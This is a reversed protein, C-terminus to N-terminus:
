RGAIIAIGNAPAAIPTTVTQVLDGDATIQFQTVHATGGGNGEILALLTGEAAIDAPTGTTQAAVARDLLLNNSTAVLRSVTHSPTNSTYLYPGIVAAWCPSHQGTGGPTGTAVAAALEGNRIVTVLDSAAVTVYANAGRTTFGFPSALAPSPLPLASAPGSVAGGRLAVTEVVGSKESVILRDGVVGVQAASGDAAILAALGDAVPDIGDHDVRHSEVTATGLVYLHDRSFALSVPHSSVPVVDRVTFGDESRVFTSVNQSGFNVVAVLDGTAAVGGGNGGAGGQGLTPVAQLLQGATDYVLLQNQPANSATVVLPARRDAAFAASAPSLLAAVILYSFRKMLKDDETLDPVM